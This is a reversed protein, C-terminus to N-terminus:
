PVVLDWTVWLVWPAKIYLMAHKRCLGNSFYFLTAIAVRNKQLPLNADDSPPLPREQFIAETSNTESHGAPPLALMSLRGGHLSPM